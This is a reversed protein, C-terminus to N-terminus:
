ATRKFDPIGRRKILRHTKSGGTELAARVQAVTVGARSHLDAATFRLVQYGASVLLNQRLDDDV